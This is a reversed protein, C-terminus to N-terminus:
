VWKEVCGKIVYRNHITVCVLKCLAPRPIEINRRWGTKGNEEGDLVAIIIQKGKENNGWVNWIVYNM